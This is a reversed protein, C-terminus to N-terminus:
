MISSFGYGLHGGFYDFYDFYDDAYFLDLFFNTITSMYNNM